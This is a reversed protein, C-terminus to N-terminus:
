AEMSSSSDRETEKRRAMVHSTHLTQQVDGIDVTGKYVGTVIKLRSSPPNLQVPSM